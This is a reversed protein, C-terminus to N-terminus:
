VTISDMFLVELPEDFVSVPESGTVRKLDMFGTTNTIESTVSDDLTLRLEGDTGDTVYSVIWTAILDSASNTAERIESTIDDDSVDFPLSVTIINTRGKHVIIQGM